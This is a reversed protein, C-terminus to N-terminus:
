FRDRRRFEHCRFETLSVSIMKQAATVTTGTTTIITHTVIAMSDNGSVITEM